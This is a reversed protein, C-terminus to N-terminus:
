NAEWYGVTNGDDFDIRIALDCQVLLHRNAATQSSPVQITFQIQTQGVGALSNFALFTNSQAGTVVPLTLESTIDELQADVVNALKFDSM